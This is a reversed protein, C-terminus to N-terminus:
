SKASELQAVRGQLVRALGAIVGNLTFVLNTIPANLASVLSALPSQIQGLLQAVLVPKPPLTTLTTLEEPTLVKRSLVAGRVALANRANRIYTDVVKATEVPDGYGFALGTAGQLISKVEPVGAQEAAIAALTNRVVRYEVNSGRLHQRFETMSTGDLGTFATAVVITSKALREKLEEVKRVKAEAPM